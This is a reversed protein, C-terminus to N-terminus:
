NKGWWSKTFAESKEHFAKLELQSMLHRPIFTSKSCKKCKYFVGGISRLGSDVRELKESGCHEYKNAM